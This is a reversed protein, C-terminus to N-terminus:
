TSQGFTDTAVLKGSTSGRTADIQAITRGSDDTRTISVPNILAYTYSPSSGTAYGQGSWQEHDTERHVTWTARRVTTATGALDVTHAPELSQTGRGLADFEFDSVLHLGAGSPTSWGSPEDSVQTTDVDAIVRTVAGTPIDYIRRSIVGLADKTWILNGLIDFRDVGTASTGSGHQSTPVAPFTTTRQEMRVTGTHWTYGYETDIAGTGDDNRYATSKSVPYITASGASRSTYEFAKLKIATGSSGQKIKEFQVHGAAAGGGTTSYYDTVQILGASSHLTM